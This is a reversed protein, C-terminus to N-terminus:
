LFDTQHIRLVYFVVRTQKKIPGNNGTNRVSKDPVIVFIL